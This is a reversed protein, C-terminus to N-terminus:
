KQEGSTREIEKQIEYMECMIIWKKDIMEQIQHTLDSEREKLKQLRQVPDTTNNLAFGNGMTLGDYNAM